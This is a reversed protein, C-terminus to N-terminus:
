NSKAIAVIRAVNIMDGVSQGTTPTVLPIFGTSIAAVAAAPNAYGTDRISDGGVGGAQGGSVLTFVVSM